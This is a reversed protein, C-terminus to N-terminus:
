KGAAWQFANKLLTQYEPLEHARGDHGLTICVIRSKPHKVIWVQPFTKGSKVSTARALVEIPTGEPDPIFNYLEDTIKFRASVGAMIPHNPATVEVEFEGLADHGRTGGGIIEKNWQPFNKWAYWTGPHLPVIGKGLAAFQMLAACTESSVPQNASWGLVDIDKLIAPTGNANQTYDIWAPKLASLTAKDAGGYWKAFDHSSGGGVLLIRVGDAKAPPQPVPDNFQPHFSVDVSAAPTATAPGIASIGAKPAELGSNLAATGKESNEATIAVFVPAIQNDFSEIILKAIVGGPSLPRQFVRMQKGKEVLPALAAGPLETHGRYDSFEVGNRFVLEETEGGEYVVTVKAVPANALSDGGYPFGWGAVGGLFHLATARVKPVTVEVKQPYTQAFGSGGELALLNLGGPSQAPDIVQFPVEGVQATGYKKFELNDSVNEKSAFLGLRGDATAVRKLNIIRFRTNGSELFALIDRLNEAGLAEFGEPMLSRAMDTRTKINAKVIEHEGSPDRLLVSQANEQAIVGVFTDGNKTEFSYSNFSPDVERNPDVIDVLLEARPHAGMGTLEPGVNAGEGNFRHCIACAAKFTVKGKAADGGQEVSPLLQAVLKDKEKTQPGRIQEIVEGAERAITKDSYNRLRDLGVPGLLNLPVARAKIAAVLSRTWEPRKLIQSITESQLSPEITPLAQVLLTGAGRNGGNGIEDILRQRLALSAKSALLATLAPSIDVKAALLTAAASGRKEDSASADNLTALLGATLAKIQPAIAGEMGWASALPLVASADPSKLLVAIANRLEPTPPPATEPRAASAIKELAAQKAWGPAAPSALLPIVKALRERDGAVAGGLWAVLERAAPGDALKFAADLALVPDSALTGLVASKIYEDPTEAFISVLTAALRHDNLATFEVRHQAPPSADMRAALENRTALIAALQVQPDKDKLRKNVSVALPSDLLVGNKDKGLPFARAVASDAAVIKLANKAVIPDKDAIASLLIEGTLKQQLDLIWLAHIRAYASKRTETALKTLLDTGEGRETVLRHATFRVAKNPHELAAVLAAPDAKSLDPVPIKLAQKNDIKWVRSFYHDRDPRVAANVGNHDPGRTDNHIVAQNYFDVVYMAGDPGVRVEIPRFWMDTSTIFETQERGPQKHASYSVGSPDIFRHHVLNITPETTFYSGHWLSPWTGGDYIVTGAAATFSGVFDIQRYAQQEWTMAPYTKDSPIVVNFGSISGVKGKSLQDESLVTHMLLQGSTPQTWMIENDETVTLGWTNGGKSSYQEIASGDPKFRVVGSGIPGFHLSGDGNTVDPSKSYGHTAYIWGDFGWRPNNIVAHTDRTGLGHYLVEVKDAKGVGKTDRIWLIDPAQTVIVGDKYFVMGTALELGEYFVHKTDMVGDGKSDELWSIRDHAPRDQKGPVPVLGGHDKWERGQYDERLGRRGNPYEPTETVWLRGKPDWNVNIVKNVLPESAVLAAKFDPHIILKALEDKPLSPGGPPYRLSALEEPSVLEDVNPRKAAWAIGRLLIARYQPLLFTSFNHGLISCFARAGDKEYVWMMPTTNYISPFARGQRQARQDPTWSSALVHAAPDLELEYYMEDDLNFNSCGATIPHKNDVYYLDLNGEFWKSKGEQYGGGAITKFWAADHGCVADHIVVLGGGRKRFKELIVRQEPSIDAADQAYMIMVDSGDLQAETPFNLGGDVKAGRETLLKTWAELFHPHDHQNPGHTKVGARIFIRLPAAIASGHLVNLSLALILLLVLRKM